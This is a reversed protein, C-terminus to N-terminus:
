STAERAAPLMDVYFRSVGAAIAEIRVAEVTEPDFDYPTNVIAETAVQATIKRTSSRM